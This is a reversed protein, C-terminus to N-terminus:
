PDQVKGAHSIYGSPALWANLRTLPLETIRHQLLSLITSAASKANRLGHEFPAM